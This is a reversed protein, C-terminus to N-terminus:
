ESGAPYIRLRRIASSFHANTNDGDAMLWLGALRTPAPLKYTVEFWDPHATDTLETVSVYSLQDSYPSPWTSGRPHYRSAVLYVVNGVAVNMTKALQKIWDPAFMSVLKRDGATILGIRIVFDDGNRSSEDSRSTVAPLGSYHMDWSIGSITEVSEFPYVLFSSSNKVMMAIGEGNPTEIQQFLTPEIGDFTIQKWDSLVLSVERMSASAACASGTLLFLLFFRKMEFEMRTASYPDIKSNHLQRRQPTNSLTLMAAM